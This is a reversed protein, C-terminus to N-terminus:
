LLELIGHHIKVTVQSTQGLVEGDTHLYVAEETTISITEGQRVTVGRHKVHNGKKATPVLLFFRLRGIDSAVCLDIKGDQGKAEPCFLFGGGEYGHNMCVAFLTKGFSLSETIGQSTVEIRFPLLRTTLILRVAVGLYILKGMHFRNLLKKYPSREVGACSAADFGMGASVLFFRKKEEGTRADAYSVEGLDLKGKKEGALIRAAADQPTRIGIARAFDNSSGTPLYGIRVQSFDEIGNLVENLTGDGGLVLFTQPSSRETQGEQERCLDQALRALGCDLSSMHVQCNWGAALFSPALKEWVKVSYGSQSAPNILVHVVQTAADEEVSGHYEM